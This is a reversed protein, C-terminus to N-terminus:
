DARGSIQWSGKATNRYIEWWTKGLMKMTHDARRGATVLWPQHRMTGRAYTRGLHVRVETAVHTSDHLISWKYSPRSLDRTPIDSRIAFIEGQRIVERGLAKAYAVQLPILVEYADKISTVKKPLECLFYNRRREEYDISSLFYRRGWRIVTAGLEHEKRPSGLPFSQNTCLDSGNDSHIWKYRYTGNKPMLEHPKTWARAQSYFYATVVKEAGKVRQAEEWTGIPEGYPKRQVVKGCVACVEWFRDDRTDVIRISKDLGTSRNGYGAMRKTEKVMGAGALASFPIQVTNNRDHARLHNIAVMNHSVFNYRDGNIIYEVGSGWKGRIALDGLFTSGLTDGDFYLSSGKAGSNPNKNEKYKTLLQAHSLGM